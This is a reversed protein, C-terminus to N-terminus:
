WDEGDDFMNFGGGELGDMRGDDVEEVEPSDMLVKFDNGGPLNCIQNFVQLTPNGDSTAAKMPLFLEELNNAHVANAGSLKAADELLYAARGDGGTDGLSVAIIKPPICGEISAGDKQCAGEIDAKLEEFHGYSDREDFLVIVYTPRDLKAPDLNKSVLEMAEDVHGASTVPNEIPISRLCELLAEHSSVLEGQGCPYTPRNPPSQWHAVSVQMNQFQYAVHM